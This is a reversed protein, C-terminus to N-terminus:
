ACLYYYYPIDISEEKKLLKSHAIQTAWNKDEGQNGLPGTEPFKFKQAIERLMTNLHNPYRYYVVKGNENRHFYSDYRISHIFLQPNQGNWTLIGRLEIVNPSMMIKQYIMEIYHDSVMDDDDLFNVYTGQALSLLVNRKFGISHAEARDSFWIIEIRNELNLSQIQSTLKALLRELM